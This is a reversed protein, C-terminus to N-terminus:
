LTSLRELLKERLKLEKRWFADTHKGGPIAWFEKPECAADFVDQGLQTNVVFDADGHIVVLPVPSLECLKKPKPAWKDNLLLYAFPQFPWTIWNQKLVYRGASQYSYFSSDILILKVREKTHPWDQLARLSIVGGLSQGIVVLPRKSQQSAWELTALADEVTARPSPEGPSKGYGRYDVTLLPYGAEVLWSFAPTNYSVNGANGHFFVVLPADKRAKKPEFIWGHLSLKAETPIAVDQPELAQLAPNKVLEPEPYYLLNSCATLLTLAGLIKVM